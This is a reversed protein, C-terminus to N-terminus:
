VPAHHRNALSEATEKWRKLSRASSKTHPHSRGLLKGRLKVCDEMLVLAEHINEQFYFNRALNAMSTLTYPNEPGLVRGNAEVVQVEQEEAEKWRGQNRYTVALNAM